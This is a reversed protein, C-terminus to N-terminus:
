SHEPLVYPSRYLAATAANANYQSFTVLTGGPYLWLVELTDLIERNSGAPLSKWSRLREATLRRFV